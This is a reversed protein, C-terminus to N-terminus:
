FYVSSKVIQELRKKLQDRRSLHGSPPNYHDCGQSSARLSVCNERATPSCYHSKRASYHLEHGKITANFFDERATPQSNVNVSRASLGGTAVHTHLLM